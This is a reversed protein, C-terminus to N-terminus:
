WELGRVTCSEMVVIGDKSAIFKDMICREFRVCPAKIEMRPEWFKCDRCFNCDRVVVLRREHPNTIAERAVAADAEIVLRGYWREARAMNERAVYDHIARSLGHDEIRDQVRQMAQRLLMLPGMKM